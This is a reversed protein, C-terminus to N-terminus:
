AWNANSVYSYLVVVYESTSSFATGAYAYIKDGSNLLLQIQGNAAVKIGANSGTVAGLTDDGISIDLTTSRNQITVQCQPTGTPVTFLLTKGAAPQAVIHDLAM